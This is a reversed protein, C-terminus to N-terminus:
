QKLSDKEAVTAHRALIIVPLFLLWAGLVAWVVANRNQNRAAVYCIYPNTSWFLFALFININLAQSKLLSDAVFGGAVVIVLAWIWSWAPREAIKKNITSLM